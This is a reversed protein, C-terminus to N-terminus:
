EPDKVTIRYIVPTTKSHRDLEERSQYGLMGFAESKLVKLQGFEHPLRTPVLREIKELKRDFRHWAYGPLYIWGEHEFIMGDYNGATFIGVDQKDADVWPIVRKRDLWPGQRTNLDYSWADHYAMILKGDICIPKGPPNGAQMGLASVRLSDLEVTLPSVGDRPILLFEKGRHDYRAVWSKPHITWDLELDEKERLGGVRSAVPRRAEHFVRVQRETAGVNWMACWSRAGNELNGIVLWRKPSVAFVALTEFPPFTAAPDIEAVQTGGPDLLKWADTPKAPDWILLHAGDWLVSRNGNYSYGHIRTLRENKDVRVISISGIIFDFDRSGPLIRFEHERYETLDWQVPEFVMRGTTPATLNAMRDVEKKPPRDGTAVKSLESRIALLRSLVFDCPQHKFFPISENAHPRRSIEEIQETALAIWKRANQVESETFEKPGQVDQPNAVKHLTSGSETWLFALWAYFKFHAHEEHLWANYVPTLEGEERIFHHEGSTGERMDKIYVHTAPSRLFLGAHLTTPFSEPTAAIAERFLRDVEPAHYYKQDMRLMLTSWVLGSWKAQLELREKLSYNGREIAALFPVKLVRFLRADEQFRADNAERFEPHTLWYFTPVNLGGHYECWFQLREYALRVDLERTAILWELNELAKTRVQSAKQRVGNSQNKRFPNSDITLLSALASYDYNLKMRETRNKPDLMLLSERFEISREFDGLFAYRDAREILLRVQSDLGLASDKGKQDLLQRVLTRSIWEPAEEMTLTPSQYSEIKGKSIKRAVFEISKPIRPLGPAEPPSSTVQYEVEVVWPIVRERLEQDNVSEQAMLRAREFDVIAVGPELDLSRTLLDHFTEGLDDFQKEINKAAFPSVGISYRVGDRFQHRIGLISDVVQDIAQIARDKQIVLFGLRAAQRCSYITIRLNKPSKVAPTEPTTKEEADVSAILILADAQIRRGFKAAAAEAGQKAFLQQLLQEDEILKLRDREVLALDNETLKATLLDSFSETAGSKPSAPFVIADLGPETVIAWTEIPSQALAVLPSSLAALWLSCLILAWAGRIMSPMKLLTCIGRGRGASRSRSMQM